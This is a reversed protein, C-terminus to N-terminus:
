QIKAYGSNTVKVQIKKAAVDLVTQQPYSTGDPLKDFQV